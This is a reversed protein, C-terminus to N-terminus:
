EHLMIVPKDFRLDLRYFRKGEITLRSLIFQLSSIQKDYPKNQSFVVEGGNELIVVTASPSASLTRKAAINKKALESVIDMKQTPPFLTTKLTSFTSGPLPSFLAPKKLLRYLLFISPILLLGIFFIYFFVMIPKKSRKRRSVRKIDYRIQKQKRM